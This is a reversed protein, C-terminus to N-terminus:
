LRGQAKDVWCQTKADSGTDENERQYLVTNNYSM